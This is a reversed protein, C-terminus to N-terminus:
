LSGKRQHSSVIADYLMKWAPKDQSSSLPSSWVEEFGILSSGESKETSSSSSEYIPRNLQAVPMAIKISSTLFVEEWLSSEDLLIPGIEVDLGCQNAANIIMQRSYGGLASDTDVTRLVGGPYLVFLNSTLGELLYVRNLVSEVLIVEDNGGAKFMRELPRRRSCWASLKAHPSSNYRNPLPTALHTSTDSMALNATVPSPDYAKPESFAESSYGHVDVQLGNSDTDPTWLITLMLTILSEPSPDHELKQFRQQADDLLISILRISETEAASLDCDDPCTDVHFISEKLRQIHFEQGWIDWDSTSPRFDCRIVTYAGSSSTMAEQFELWERPSALNYSKSSQIKKTTSDVFKVNSSGSSETYKSFASLRCPSNSTIPSPVVFLRRRHRPNNGVFGWTEISSMALFFCFVFRSWLMKFNKMIQGLYWVIHM